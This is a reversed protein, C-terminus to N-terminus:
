EPGTALSLTDTRISDADPLIARVGRELALRRNLEIRPQWNTYTVALLLGFGLSSVLVLWSSKFFERM